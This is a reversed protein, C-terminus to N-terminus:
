SLDIAADDVYLTKLDALRKFVGTDKVDSLAAEFESKSESESEYGSAEGHGTRLSDSARGEGPYLLRNKLFLLTLFRLFLIVRGSQILIGRLPFLVKPVERDAIVSFM